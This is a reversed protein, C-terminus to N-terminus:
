KTTIKLETNNPRLQNRTGAGLSLSALSGTQEKIKLKKGLVPYYAIGIQIFM